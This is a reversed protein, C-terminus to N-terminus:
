SLAGLIPAAKSWLAAVAAAALVALSAVALVFATGNV